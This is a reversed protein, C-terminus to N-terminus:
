MEREPRGLLDTISQRCVQNFYKLCQYVRRVVCVDAQVLRGFHIETFYPTPPRSCFCVRREEIKNKWRLFLQWASESHRQLLPYVTLAHEHHLLGVSDIDTITKGIVYGFRVIIPEM